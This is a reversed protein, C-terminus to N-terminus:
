WSTSWPDLMVMGLVLLGPVLVDPVLSGLVLPGPRFLSRAAIM